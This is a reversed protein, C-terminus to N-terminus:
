AEAQESDGEQVVGVIRAREFDAPCIALHVCCGPALVHMLETDRQEVFAITRKGNPLRAHFALAACPAELLGVCHILEPPLDYRVM